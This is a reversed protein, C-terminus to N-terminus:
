VSTAKSKKKSKSMLMTQYEAKAKANRALRKRKTSLWKKKRSIRRQTVLRQIKPRKTFTKGSPRTVEREIVYDRVDYESTLNFLKRLKSARKPGLRRPRVEDTLGPIEKDGISIVNLALVQIDPGVICGRVSKKKREGGRRPRYCSHGKALLLKVRKSSLVGQKMTFGQKDNGGTIKFVYGEYEAGLVEGDLEASMRLDYVKQLKRQDNIEICKMQGTVPNSINFKM